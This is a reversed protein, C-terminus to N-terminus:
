GLRAAVKEILKLDKEAYIETIKMHQHGLAVQAADLSMTKRVRTAFSHRLQNPKWVKVGAKECARRIAREYSCIKYTEGPTVLPKKKKRNVQSPQVKTKRNQRLLKHRDHHAELASFIPLDAPRYVWDALFAQLNKGIAIRREIDRYDTKHVKPTYIWITKRRDIDAWTAQLAEGPRCGTHWQFNILGWVQRSVFPRVAEVDAWEVSTIRQPEPAASRRKRLKEVTRLSDYTAGPVMERSVGWKWARVVYRHYKIIQGRTLRKAVWANIVFELQAAKFQQAELEGFLDVVAKFAYRINKPENNGPLYKSQNYLDFREVLECVKIPVSDDKLKGTAIYMALLQQYRALSETTGYKGLYVTVGDWVVMGLGSSAHQRYSPLGRRSETMSKAFESFEFAKAM